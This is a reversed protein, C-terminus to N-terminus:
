WLGPLWDSDSTTVSSSTNNTSTDSSSDPTSTTTSTTGSTTSTTASTTTSTTASTTSSTSATSSTDTEAPKSSNPIVEVELGGDQEVSELYDNWDSEVQDNPFVSGTAGDLRISSTSGADVDADKSKFPNFFITALVLVAAFLVTALVIVLKKNM